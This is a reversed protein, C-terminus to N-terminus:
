YITQIKYCFIELTVVKNLTHCLLQSNKIIFSLNNIIFEVNFM